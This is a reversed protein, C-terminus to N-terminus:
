FSVQHSSQTTFTYRVFCNHLAVPKSDVWVVLQYGKVPRVIFEWYSSSVCFFRYTCAQLLLWNALSALTWGVLSIFIVCVLLSCTLAYMLVYMFYPALTCGFHTFWTTFAVAVYGQVTHFSEVLTVLAQKMFRPGTTRTLLPKQGLRHFTKSLQKSFQFLTFCAHKM